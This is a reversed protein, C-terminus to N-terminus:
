EWIFWESGDKCDVWALFGVFFADSNECVRLLLTYNATISVSWLGSFSNDSRIAHFILQWLIPCFFHFRAHPKANWERDAIQWNKTAEVVRNNVVMGIQWFMNKEGMGGCDCKFWECQIAPYICLSCVAFDCPFYLSFEWKIWKVVGEMSRFLFAVWSSHLAPDLHMGSGIRLWSTFIRGALSQGRHSNGILLWMQRKSCSGPASKSSGRTRWWFQSWVVVPEGRQITRCRHKCCSGSHEVAPSYPVSHM